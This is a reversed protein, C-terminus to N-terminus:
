LLSKRFGQAQLFTVLTAHWEAPADELGYVPRLVEMISGKTLKLEDCSEAYLKGAKRDLHDSQTRAAKADAVGIIMKFARAMILFLSISM